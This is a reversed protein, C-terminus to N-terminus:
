GAVTPLAAVMAPEAVMRPVVETVQREATRHKVVMLLPAAPRGLLLARHCTEVSPHRVALLGGHPRVGVEVVTPRGLRHAVV